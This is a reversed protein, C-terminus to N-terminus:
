VSGEADHAASKRPCHTHAVKTGTSKRQNASAGKFVSPITCADELGVITSCDESLRKTFNKFLAISLKWTKECHSLLHHISHLCPLAETKLPFHGRKPSLCATFTSKRTSNGSGAASAPNSTPRGGVERLRQAGEKRRETGSGTRKKKSEEVREQDATQRM